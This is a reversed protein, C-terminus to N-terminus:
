AASPNDERGVALGIAAVPHALDIVSVARAGASYSYRSTAPTSHAIRAHWRERAHPNARDQMCGHDGCERIAHAENLGPIAWGRLSRISPRREKMTLMLHVGAGPRITVKDRENGNSGYPFSSKLNDDGMGDPSVPRVYCRGGCPPPSRLM